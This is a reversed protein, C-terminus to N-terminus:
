HDGRVDVYHRIQHLLERKKSIKSINKEGNKKKKKLRYRESGVIWSSPLLVQLLRRIIEAIIM